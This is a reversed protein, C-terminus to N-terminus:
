PPSSPATGWRRSCFCAQEPSAITSPSTPRVTRSPRGGRVFRAISTQSEAEPCSGDPSCRFNQPVAGYSTLNGAFAGPAWNNGDIGEAFATTGTLLGALNEGALSADHTDIYQAPIDAGALLDMAYACEPDRAGRASDAAAMCTIPVAPFSGDAAVGRDVLDHADSYDFGDLRSVVFLNDTYEWLHSIPANQRRPARPQRDDSAITIATTYHAMYPNDLVYPDTASNGVYWPNEISAQAVGGWTSIPLGALSEGSTSKTTNSVQLMASLSVSFGSPLAVRYPLGRVLVLYDVEEQQPHAALCGNLGALINARYDELSISDSSPDVGFVSCVHGQPLARASAYHDAVAVASPDDGNVVVFVNAPGGGAQAATSVLLLSVM